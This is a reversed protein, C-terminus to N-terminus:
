GALPCEGEGQFHGQTALQARVYEWVTDLPVIPSGGLQFRDDIESLDSPALAELEDRGVRGDLDLDCDALWQALRLTGTEATEPFGNFFLHDGHITLAATRTSGAAIAVGPLGDIECPGYRVPVAADIVFDVQPAAFCPDGAANGGAPEADDPPTALGAPPCSRGDERSLTGAIAYTLGEARMAAALDPEISEHVDADDATPTSWALDWRGAALGDLLWLEEGAAPIATLDVVFVEPARVPDDADDARSLEVDGIAVAFRSFDVRWGDRVNEFAEGADIGEVITEEPEVLVALEGTPPTCTTTLLAPLAIVHHIRTM